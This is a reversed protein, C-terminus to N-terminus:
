GGEDSGGGTLVRIESVRLRHEERVKLNGGATQESAFVAAQWRYRQLLM